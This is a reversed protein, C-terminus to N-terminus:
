CRASPTRGAGPRPVGARKEHQRSTARVISCARRRPQAIVSAAERFTVNAAASPVPQGPRGRARRAAPAAAAPAAGAPLIKDTERLIEKVNQSWRTGSSTRTSTVDIQGHAVAARGRRRPAARRHRRRRDVADLVAVADQRQAVARQRLRDQLRAPVALRADRAPEARQARLAHRGAARHADAAAAADPRDREADGRRHNRPPHRRQAERRPRARVAARAVRVNNVVVSYTEPPATPKPKPLVPTIQVPPPIPAPQHRRRPRCALHTAAPPVPPQACGALLAVLAACRLLLKGTM